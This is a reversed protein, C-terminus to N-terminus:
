EQIIMKKLFSLNKRDRVSFLRVTKALCSAIWLVDCAKLYIMGSPKMDQILDIKTKRSGFLYKIGDRRGFLTLLFFDYIFFDSEFSDPKQRCL